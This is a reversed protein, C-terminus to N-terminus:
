DSIEDIERSDSRFENQSEIIQGLYKPQEKHVFIKERDHSESSILEGRHSNSASYEDLRNIDKEFQQLDNSLVKKVVNRSFNREEMVRLIVDNIKQQTLPSEIIIQFGAEKAQVEM